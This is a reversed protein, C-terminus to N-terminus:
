DIGLFVFFSSSSVAEKGIRLILILGVEVILANLEAERRGRKEDKRAYGEGEFACVTGSRDATGEIACDCLAPLALLYSRVATLLVSTEEHFDFRLQALSVELKFNM